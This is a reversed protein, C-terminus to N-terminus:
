NMATGRGKNSAVIARLRSGSVNENSTILFQYRNRLHLCVFHLKKKFNGGFFVLVSPSIRIIKLVVKNLMTQLLTRCFIFNKM